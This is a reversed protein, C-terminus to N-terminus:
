AGPMAASNAAIRALLRMLYLNFGRFGPDDLINPLTGPHPLIARSRTLRSSRSFREIGHALL